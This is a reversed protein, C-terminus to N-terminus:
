YVCKLAASAHLNMNSPSALKQRFCCIKKQKDVLNEYSFTHEHLRLRIHNFKQGLASDIFLHIYKRKSIKM